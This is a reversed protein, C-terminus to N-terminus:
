KEPTLRECFYQVVRNFFDSVSETDTQRFVSGSWSGGPHCDFTFDYGIEIGDGMCFIKVSKIYPNVRDPYDPHYYQKKLLKGNLSNIFDWQEIIDGSPKIPIWVHGDLEIKNETRWKEVVPDAAGIIANLFHLRLMSQKLPYGSNYSNGCYGLIQKEVSSVYWGSREYYEKGTKLMWNLVELLVSLDYGGGINLLERFKIKKRKM